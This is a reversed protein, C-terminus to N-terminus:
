GATGFLKEAVEHKTRTKPHQNKVPGHGQPHSEPECPRRASPPSPRRQGPGGVCASRAHVLLEGRGEASEGRGEGSAWGCARLLRAYARVSGCVRARRAYVVRTCPRVRTTAYVGAQVCACLGAGARARGPACAFNPASALIFVARGAGSVFM